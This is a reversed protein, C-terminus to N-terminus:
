DVWAEAFSFGDTSPRLGHVRPAEMTQV